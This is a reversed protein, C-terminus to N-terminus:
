HNQRHRNWDVVSMPAAWRWSRQVKPPLLFSSFLPFFSLVYFFSLVSNTPPVSKCEYVMLYLYVSKTGIHRTHRNTAERMLSSMTQTSSSNSSSNNSNNSSSTASSSNNNDDDNTHRRSRQGGARAAKAAKAEKERWYMRQSRMREVYDVRSLLKFIRMNQYKALPSKLDRNRQTAYAYANERIPRPCCLRRLPCRLCCRYLPSAVFSRKYYFIKSILMQPLYAQRDERLNRLM